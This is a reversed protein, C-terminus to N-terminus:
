HPPLVWYCHTNLSSSPDLDIGVFKENMAHETFILGVTKKYDTALIISM